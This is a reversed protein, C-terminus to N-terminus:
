DVSHFEVVTIEVCHGGNGESRSSKRWITDTM